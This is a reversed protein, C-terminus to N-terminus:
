RCVRTVRFWRWWENTKSGKWGDGPETERSSRQTNNSRCIFSTCNSWMFVLFYEHLEFRWWSICEWLTLSTCLTSILSMVLIVPIVTSVYLLAIVYQLCAFFFYYDQILILFWIVGFKVSEKQGLGVGRLVKMFMWRCSKSYYVFCCFLFM